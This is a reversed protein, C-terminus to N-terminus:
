SCSSICEVINPFIGRSILLNIQKVMLDMVSVTRRMKKLAKSVSGARLDLILASTEHMMLKFWLEAAQHIIIFFMEDHAPENGPLDSEPYQADLIKDLHLYDHYYVKKQEM